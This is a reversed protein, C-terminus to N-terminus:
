KTPIGLVGPDFYLCSHLFGLSSSPLLHHFGTLLALTVLYVLFTLRCQINNRKSLYNHVVVVMDWILLRCQLSERGIKSSPSVLPAYMGVKCCNDQEPMSFCRYSYYCSDVYQFMTYSLNLIHFTNMTRSFECNHTTEPTNFDLCYIEAVRTEWPLKSSNPLPVWRTTLNMIWRESM